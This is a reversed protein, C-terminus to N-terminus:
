QNELGSHQAQEISQETCPTARAIVMSSTAQRVNALALYSLGSAKQKLFGCSADGQWQMREPGGDGNCCRCRADDIEPSADLTSIPRTRAVCMALGPLDARLLM